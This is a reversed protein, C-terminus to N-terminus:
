SKLIIVRIPKGREKLAYSGNHISKLKKLNEITNM